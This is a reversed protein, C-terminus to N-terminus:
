AYGDYEDEVETIEATALATCYDIWCRKCGSDIKAPCPHEQLWTEPVPHTTHGDHFMEMQM